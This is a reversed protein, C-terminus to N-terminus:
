HIMRSLNEYRSLEIEFILRLAFSKSDPFLFSPETADQFDFLFLFFENHSLKFHPNILLFRVVLSSFM